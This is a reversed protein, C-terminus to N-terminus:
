YARYEKTCRSLADGLFDKKTFVSLALVTTLGVILIKVIIKSDM